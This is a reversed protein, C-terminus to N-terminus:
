SIPMGAFSGSKFTHPPGGPTVGAGVIATDTHITFSVSTGEAAGDISAVDAGVMLPVAAGVPIGDVKGVTKSRGGLGVAAGASGSLGVVEGTSSGVGAGSPDPAGAGVCFKM